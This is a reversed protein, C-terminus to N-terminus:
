LNTSVQHAYCDLVVMWPYREKLIRRAKRCEGSADTVVAVVTAGWQSEVEKIAAELHKLLEDATKREESTDAVKVTYIQKSILPKRFINLALEFVKGNSTIMFALLHHSNTGTWGDCQLTAEHGKTAAQAGARFEAVLTPLLRRTLTKRSPSKAYPLFEGCFDIWEPNDVWSFPLGASATLRVLCAEFRKQKSPNWQLNPDMTYPPRIPERVYSGSFSSSMSPSTAQSDETPYGSMSASAGFSRHSVAPSPPASFNSHNDYNSFYSERRIQSHSPSRPRSPGAISPSNLVIPPQQM